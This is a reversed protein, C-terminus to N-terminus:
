SSIAAATPAQSSTSTPLLEVLGDVRETRAQIDRLLHVARDLCSAESSLTLGSAVDGLRLTAAATLLTGHLVADRIQGTVQRLTRATVEDDWDGMEGGGRSEYGWARM